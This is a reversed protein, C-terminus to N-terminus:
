EHVLKAIVRAALAERAAGVVRDYKAWAPAEYESWAARWVREYEEDAIAQCVWVQWDAPAAQYTEISLPRGEAWALAPDCPGDGDVRLTLLFEPLTKM